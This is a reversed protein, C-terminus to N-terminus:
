KDGQKLLSHNQHKKNIWAELVDQSNTGPNLLYFFNSSGEYVLFSGCLLSLREIILFVLKPNGREFSIQCPIDEAIDNGSNDLNIWTYDGDNLANSIVSAKFEIGSDSFKEADTFNISSSVLFSLSTGQNALSVAYYGKLCDLTKRVEALIPYRSANTAKCLNIGNDKVLLNIFEQNDIIESISLVTWGIGM